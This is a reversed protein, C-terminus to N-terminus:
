DYRLAHLPDVRSARLAPIYGAALAFLSLVTVAAGFVLPDAGEVQYLVSGMVRGLAWAATLGVAGGSLMMVAVQRLVMLRVRSSDAGLAMRVGIERTRREVTYALVGYLGVAALLTALAAFAASLTGIMRDLFVNERVQQALSKLNEVPLNPDIRAMMPQVARMVQDTDAGTRAYFTLAGVWDQQRWAKFYMAPIEEKVDNYKSDRVIGIIETDPESGEDSIRKGIATRDLNFKRLFAENVMAVRTGNMVDQPTFERGALVPVDLTTFYGPGVINMRANTDIDPGDQFGEVAVDSGWSSGALVPVLGSSVQIVGPLAALEEEVRQFLQHSREISYGNLQPSIAFTVVNETRLGLDVKGINVLSRMFLGALILLAMSLAVQATVLGARFRAAGRTVTLNGANARITTVLDSRTSHLAPFLGFLLGTTVGLVATIAVVTPSVSLEISQVAEPPLLS